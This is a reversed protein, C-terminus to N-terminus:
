PDIGRRPEPIDDEGGPVKPLGTVKKWVVLYDLEKIAEEMDPVLGTESESTLTILSLLRKSKFHLKNSRLPALITMMSKFQTLLLKFEKLKAFSVNEVTVARFTSKVSYVFVKALIKELDMLKSMRERFTNLHVPIKTLDEVADLRDNIKYPCILPSLLWKRIQRKGFMTQTHDVWQLLSGDITNMGNVLCEVVELNEIATSDLIMFPNNKLDVDADFKMYDFFKLSQNQLM